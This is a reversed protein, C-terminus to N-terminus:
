TSAFGNTNKNLICFIDTAGGGFIRIRQHHATKPSCHRGIEKRNIYHIGATSAWHFPNRSVVLTHIYYTSRCTDRMRRLAPMNLARNSLRLAAKSHGRPEMKRQMQRKEMPSHAGNLRRKNGLHVSVSTVM